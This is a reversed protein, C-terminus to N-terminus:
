QDATLEAATAVDTILLEIDLMPIGILGHPVSSAHSKFILLDDCWCHTVHEQQTGSAVAIDVTYDGVPLVPMRFCFRARLSQASVVARSEGLYTLYTNEGFLNQGLRDKIFFGIIPNDLASLALADVVLAVQEGGVMWQLPRGQEDEFRADVIRIAGTGYGAVERRFQFLELDNRFRTQNLFRLRQDVTEVPQTPATPKMQSGPELRRASKEATVGAQTERLIALYHECVEKASGIERAQGHDLWVVRDCLNVVAGTDHSVFLLTGHEQFQRLFRMCKQVFFVDGVALAEDIVLVDARVHAIVAFALRVAMGSSYTKVPQDIFEGIDAFALIEPLYRAIEVDDLGLIAANLYVNERGTFEPNFGTGLELLAAVRGRVSLAGTTPTLTGCLMKLLTSKGSGNRGIIGVTEGRRISFSVDRLAWFERYYRRRGRWLMQKLRDQPRDYIQYCKGAERVEIVAEEAALPSSVPDSFM